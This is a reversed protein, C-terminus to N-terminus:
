TVLMALWSFFWWSAPGCKKPFKAPWLDSFSKSRISNQSVGTILGLSTALSALINLEVLRTERKDALGIGNASHCRLNAAIYCTQLLCGPAHDILMVHLIINYLNQAIHAVAPDLLGRCASSAACLPFCHMGPPIRRDPSQLNVTRLAPLSSIMALDFRRKDNSSPCM